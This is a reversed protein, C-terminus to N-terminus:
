AKPKRLPKAPKKPKELAKLDAAHRREVKKVDEEPKLKEPIIGRSGLGTRITRNNEQHEQSIAAEGRLDHVQTNHTTMAAGLQKAIVIVEPAFDCLPRGEPVKWVTKMTATSRGGFLEQDGKSRITGIEPGTLGREYLVGQFKLETDALDRRARLRSAEKMRQQLVELTRTAAAFYHQAFAVEPKRTDGNMAVLYAAKRSLIVDERPRGGSPNKRADPFVEGPEWPQAGDGTLFHLAPAVEAALCSEWARHLVARFNEWKTYGFRDMLDRARWADAGNHQFCLDEFSLFMRSITDPENTM